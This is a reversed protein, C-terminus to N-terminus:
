IIFSATGIFQLALLQVWDSPAGSVMEMIVIIHQRETATKSVAATSASRVKFFASLFFMREVELKRAGCWSM